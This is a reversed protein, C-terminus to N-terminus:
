KFVTRIIGVRDNIKTRCWGVDIKKRVSKLALPGFKSVPTEGHLAVLNKVAHRYNQFTGTHEGNSHRYHKEAWVLFRYTLDSVTVDCM